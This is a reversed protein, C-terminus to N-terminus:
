KRHSLPGGAELSSAYSSNCAINTLSAILWSPTLCSLSGSAASRTLGWECCCTPRQQGNECAQTVRVLLPMGWACSLSSISGFSDVRQAPPCPPHNHDILTHCFNFTRTISAVYHIVQDPNFSFITCTYSICMYRKYIYVYMCAYMSINRYKSVFSNHFLKEKEWTM